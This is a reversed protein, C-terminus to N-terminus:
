PRIRLESLTRALPHLLLYEDNLDHYIKGTYKNKLEIIRPDSSQDFQFAAKMPGYADATLESLYAIDLRGRNQYISQAKVAILGDLNLLNLVMYLSLALLTLSKLLSRNKGALHLGVLILGLAFFILAFKVFLRLHTYGFESEYLGMKYFSSIIMNATFLMMLLFGSKMWRNTLPSDNTFSYLVWLLLLNIALVLLLSFFGSRAYQSISQNMASLATKPFYLTRFQTLTFLAYLTNVSWLVVLSITSSHKSDTSIVMPPHDRTLLLTIIVGLFYVLAMLTGVIRSAAQSLQFGSLFNQWFSGLSRAFEADARTLLSLLFLILPLTILLGIVVDQATKRSTAKVPKHGPSRLFGPLYYLSRLPGTLLVDLATLFPRPTMNPHSRLALILSFVALLPLGIFNIVSLPVSAYLAAHASGALVAGLAFAVTIDRYRLYDKFFWFGVLVFFPWFLAQYFGRPTALYHNAFFWAMPIGFLTLLRRRMPHITQILEKSGALRSQFEGQSLPLADPIIPQEM